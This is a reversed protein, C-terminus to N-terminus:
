VFDTRNGDNLPNLFSKWLQHILNTSYAFMHLNRAANFFPPSDDIGELAETTISVVVSAPFITAAAFYLFKNAIALNFLM